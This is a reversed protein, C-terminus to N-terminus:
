TLHLDEALISNIGNSILVLFVPRGEAKAKAIAGAFGIAEDDQHPLWFIAPAASNPLTYSDLAPVIGSSATSQASAVVPVLAASAGLLISALLLALSLSSTKTTM